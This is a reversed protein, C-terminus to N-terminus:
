PVGLWAALSPWDAAIWRQADDLSLLGDCVARRARVEVVDKRNPQGPEPWLNAPDSSGGLVLPILHDLEYDAPDDGPRGYAVLAFREIRRTISTSPRKLNATVWGAQCITTAINEQTVREDTAGPTCHGDPTVDGHENTIYFCEPVEVVQQAMAERAILLLALLALGLALAALVSPRM